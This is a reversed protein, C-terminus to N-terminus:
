SHPILMREPSRFPAMLLRFGKLVDDGEAEYAILRLYSLCSIVELDIPSRKLQLLNQKRTVM